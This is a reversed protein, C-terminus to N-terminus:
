PGRCPTIIWRLPSPRRRTCARGRRRTAGAHARGRRHLVRLAGEFGAAPVLGDAGPLFM